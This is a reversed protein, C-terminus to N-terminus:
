KKVKKKKKKPEEPVEVEVIDDFSVKRKKDGTQVRVENEKPFIDLVTGKLKKGKFKYTVDSGVSLEVDESASDKEDEDEDEDEDDDDEDEDDDDEDKKKSKKKKSPKKEEEDEDDSDDDDEEEEEEDDDDKKKKASKKKSSSTEEEEDDDEEEEDSEEEEEDEDDEDEADEDDDSGKVAVINVNQFDGKTKLAIKAEPKDKSIEKAIGKFDSVSEVEDTDFGLKDLDILLYKLNDESELGRYDFKTKGKYEGKLFKWSLVLQLRGNGSEGIEAKILKAQYRGDDFEEFGGSKKGEKAGELHKKLASALRKDLDM